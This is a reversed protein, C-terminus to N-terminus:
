TGFNRSPSRCGPFLGTRCCTVVWHEVEKSAKEADAARFDMPVVTEKAKVDILVIATPDDFGMVSRSAPMLSSGARLIIPRGLDAHFRGKSSMVEPRLLKSKSELARTERRWDPCDGEEVATAPAVAVLV